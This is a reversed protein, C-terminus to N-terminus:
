SPSRAYRVRDVWRRATGELAMGGAAKQEFWRMGDSMQIPSRGLRYLDSRGYPNARTGAIAASRFRRRVEVAADPSGMVAKPYAFDVPARGLREHILGISRDLEDAVDRGPLRDLLRHTHTHSGVDVLGTACADRLAAWSLPRGNDPFNRGEEVFATALYLTAPVGHRVMIPLAVDAFDATGDDFTVAVRSETPAPPTTLQHLADALSVVLGSASLAAMQEDFLVPDLDVELPSHRGVRHYLLIVAGPVARRAHDALSCAVKFSQRLLDEPAV